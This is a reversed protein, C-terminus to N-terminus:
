NSLHRTIYDFERSIFSYLILSTILIGGAVM